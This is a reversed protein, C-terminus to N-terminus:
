PNLIPKRIVKGATLPTICATKCAAVCLIDYFPFFHCKLSLLQFGMTHLAEILSRMLYTLVAMPLSGCLISVNVRRMLWEFHCDKCEPRCLQFFIIVQM